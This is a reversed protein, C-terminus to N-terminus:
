AQLRPAPVGAGVSYRRDPDFQAPTLPPAFHFGQVRDCGLTVLRAAQKQTEVGEAVVLRHTAHAMALVARVIAEDGEVDPLGAVFSRDIKVIDAPLDRLSTLSSYGTGFDDIAVHVGLDRIQSLVDLTPGVADVVTSETVELVLQDAPVDHAQLLTTITAAFDPDALQRPSVNVAIELPANADSWRARLALAVDLVRLGLPVILGTEEAVPIFSAPPLLSGDLDRLRVLAEAGVILGTQLDVVPQAHVEIRNESLATRLTDRMAVRLQVRRDLEPRYLEIRDRGLDKARTLAVDAQRLLDEPGTRGTSIVVGISTHITHTRGDLELPQAVAERIHEALATAAASAMPQGSVIVFEDAGLRGVADDVSVASRVRDAMALLVRDGTDHGLSDNIQKFGDLDCCLVAIGPPVTGAATRVAVREVLAQRNLLDTLPDHTARHVLGAEAARAGTVDELIVLVFDEDDALETVVTATSVVTLVAGDVRRLHLERRMTGAAPLINTGDLFEDLRRGILASGEVGVMRQFADNAELLVGSPASSVRATAVPSQAFVSQLLQERRHEQTRDICIGGVGFPRQNEDLIPFVMTAHHRIQGEIATTQSYEHRMGSQMVEDDQRRFMAALDPPYLDESSRGLFDEVAMGSAAALAPNVDIYIYRDTAADYRKVFLEASAGELANTLMEASRVAAADQDRTYSAYAALMIVSAALVTLYLQCALVANTLGSTAHVFVGSNSSVGLALWCTVVTLACAALFAGFRIGLWGLVTVLLFLPAAGAVTHADMLTAGILLFLTVATLAFLEVQRLGSLRLSGPEYGLALSGTVLVGIVGTLASQPTMASTADALGVIRANVETMIPMVLAAVAALAFLRGADAPGRLEHLGLARGTLSLVVLTVVVTVATAIAVPLPRGTGVALLILVLAYGGTLLSLGKRPIRLSWAVAFGLGLSIIAISTSPTGPTAVLSVAIFFLLAIPASRWQKLWHMQM